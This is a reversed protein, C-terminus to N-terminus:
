KARAEVETVAHGLAPPQQPVVRARLKANPALVGHYRILRLRPRPVLAALRQMFELPSMMLLTAGDRWPTKLELEAQGAAKVQLREDSLAPRTITRCLRELRKCEHAEICVAAHLSFGHIYACLPRRATVERPM